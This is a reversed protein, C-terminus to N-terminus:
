ANVDAILARVLQYHADRERERNAIAQQHEQRHEEVIRLATRAFIRWHERAAETTESFQEMELPHMEVWFRRTDEWAAEAIKEVLTEDNM